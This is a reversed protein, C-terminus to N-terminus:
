TNLGGMTRNGPKKLISVVAVRLKTSNTEGEEQNFIHSLRLIELRRCSGAATGLRALKMCASPIVGGLISSGPNNIGAPKRNLFSPPNQRGCEHSVKFAQNFRTWNSTTTKSPPHIYISLPPLTNSRRRPLELQSINIIKITSFSQPIELRIPSEDGPDLRTMHLLEM